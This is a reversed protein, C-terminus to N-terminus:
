FFFSFNFTLFTTPRSSHTNVVGCLERVVIKSKENKEAGYTRNRKEKAM